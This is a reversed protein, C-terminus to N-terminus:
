GTKNFTYRISNTIAENLILGIPVAQSIDLNM